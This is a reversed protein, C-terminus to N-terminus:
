YNYCLRVAIKREHNKNFKLAAFPRLNLDSVGESSIIVHYQGMLFNILREICLM